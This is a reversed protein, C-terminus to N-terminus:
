IYRVSVSGFSVDTALSITGAPVADPRGSFDVSAFNTSSSADVQYRRPVLLTIEGFACQLDLHCGAAVEECGSLDVEFDGFSVDIQGSSLRPMEVLYRNDGFSSSCTFSEGDVQYDSHAMKGNRHISIHRKRPRRLADVLLSVGFLLLFVPLLLDRGWGAPLVDLNLLLFYGGLLGCGLRFFSFKPCLGFLGFVLIGSPWLIDWLGTNWHLLNGALMLGGVLLVWVAIGIGDRKAPDIQIEWKGNEEGTQFHIGEPEQAEGESVVEGELVAPVSVPAAVGLLADTTIGFIEALKPLISIDPCSQDNEWKSVAQATVGLQEALHDQTIGLRKRNAGIRKGLTENM